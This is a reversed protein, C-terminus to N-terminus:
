LGRGKCDPNLSSIFFMNLSNIDTINFKKADKPSYKLNMIETIISVKLLGGGQNRSLSWSYLIPTEERVTTAIM